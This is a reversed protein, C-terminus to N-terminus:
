KTDGNTESAAPVAAPPAPNATRRFFMKQVRKSRSRLRKVISERFLAYVVSSAPIMILMGVVGMLKGGITVVFLVWIAPLGVSEGVVKPYILNGEIQQIVLFVIVFVLAQVPNDMFILFAGIFCGIFAGVLPILATFAILVSILAVYNMRLILMVVAFMCGLIVAELCQGSLFSSFTRSAQAAIELTRDAIKEPALAYLIMKAQNGLREKQILIYIAFVFGIFASVIGNVANAAVDITSSVGDQVWGSVSTMIGSWDISLKSITSQIQPYDKFLNEIYEKAKDMFEPIRSGLNKITEVLQPVVLIVVAAVIAAIILLTLILAVPRHAKKLKNSKSFLKKEIARMPVNVVFAIAAGVAFPMFIAALGALFGMVTSFNRFIAFIIAAATIIGIIKWITKKDLTM